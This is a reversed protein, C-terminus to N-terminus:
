VMRPEAISSSEEPSVACVRRRLTVLGFPVVAAAIEVMSWSPTCAATTEAIAAARSRLRSSDPPQSHSVAEGDDPIVPQGLVVESRAVRHCRYAHLQGHSQRRLEAQEPRDPHLDETGHFQCGLLRDEAHVLGLVDRGDPPGRGIRVEVVSSAAQTGVVVRHKGVHVDRRAPDCPGRQHGHLRHVVPPGVVRHVQRASQVVGQGARGLAEADVVVDRDPDGPQEVLAHLPDRVDVDVHVVTVAHLGHEPVVRADHGIEIWSLGCDRKGPEPHGVSLPPASAGPM